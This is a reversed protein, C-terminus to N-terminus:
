AVNQLRCCVAENIKLNIVTTHIAAINQICMRGVEVLEMVVFGIYINTLLLGVYYDRFNSIIAKMRYDTYVCMDGVVVVAIVVNYTFLM